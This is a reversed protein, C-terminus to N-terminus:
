TEAVAMRKRTGIKLALAAAYYGCMGHVGSGPPTSSSCLFVNPLATKYPILRPIPRTLLQSLALTGGNIDGGVENENIEELRTPSSVFRALIAKKFGPAYREIQAEIAETRDEMSGMPVHCYAWAVQRGDPCRSPDFLTPQALLVFPNAPNKGLAVMGEAKAIDEITGGIHVTPAKFFEPASWPIPRDLAWDMKFCAPGYRYARLRRQYSFPLTDAAMRLLQRPTIDLFLFSCAPLDKLTRVPCDVLLEGGLASFYQLLSNTLAQAGGKPIPWGVAHAAISLSLGISASGPADFSLTSHAAVGAFVARSEDDPLCHNALGNASMLARLGFRAMPFPHLVMKPPQLLVDCLEQWNPLLSKMLQCYSSNGSGLNQATAELSQEVLLAKGPQYAQIYAGEPNIWRLGYESLPLTRFFPSGIGLPHVASCVDHKFGPLTLEMSRCGGGPIPQAEVLLVSNGAQAMAIACAIGNPGSGVVVADYVRSRCLDKATTRNM